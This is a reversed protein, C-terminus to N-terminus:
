RDRQQCRQKDGAFGYVRRIRIRIRDDLSRVVVGVQVMGRFFLSDVFGHIRHFIKQLVEIGLLRGICTIVHARVHYDIGLVIRSESEIEFGIKESIGVLFLVGVAVDYKAGVPQRLHVLLRQRDMVVTYAVGVYNQLPVVAGGVFHQYAKIEVADVGVGRVVAVIQIEVKLTGFTNEAIESIRDQVLLQYPQYGVEIEFRQYTRRGLAAGRVTRELTQAVCEVHRYVIVVLLGYVAVLGRYEEVRDRKVSKHAIDGIVHLANELGELVFEVRQRVFIQAKQNRRQAARRERGHGAIHLEAHLRVFVEVIEIDHRRQHEVDRAAGLNGAVVFVAVFRVPLANRESRM